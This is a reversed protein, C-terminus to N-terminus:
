IHNHFICGSIAPTYSCHLICLFQWFMLLRITLNREWYIKNVKFKQHASSQCVQDDSLHSQLASWWKFLKCLAVNSSFLTLVWVYTLFVLTMCTMNANAQTQQYYINRSRRIEKTITFALLELKTKRTRKIIQFQIWSSLVSAIASAFLITSANFFWATCTPQHGTLYKLKRQCLCKM